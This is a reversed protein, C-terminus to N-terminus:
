KEAKKINKRLFIMVIHLTKSTLSHFHCTVFFKSVFSQGDPSYRKLRLCNLCSVIVFNATEVWGLFNSSPFVVVM